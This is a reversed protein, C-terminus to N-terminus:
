HQQAGKPMAEEPPIIPTEELLAVSSFVDEDSFSVYCRMEEWLEMISGALLCPKDRTPLNAKEAWFQLAQAYAVM